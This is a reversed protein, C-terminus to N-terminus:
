RNIYIHYFLYTIINLYQKSLRLIQYLYVIYVYILYNAGVAKKSKADNSRYDKIISSIEQLRYVPPLANTDERYWQHMVAIEDKRKPSKELIQILIEFEKSEINAPIPRYGYRQGLFIQLIVSAEKIYLVVLSICTLEDEFM